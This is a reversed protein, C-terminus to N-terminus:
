RIDCFCEAYTHLPDNFRSLKALEREVLSMAQSVNPYRPALWTPSVGFKASADLLQMLFQEEESLQPEIFRTDYDGDSLSAAEAALAIADDINGIVDILGNDKAERGLWVKGQAIADVEDYTMDRNQAVGNVFDDYGNEINLQLVRKVKDTLARDVRMAGAIETSGVGDTYVGLRALSREFTPLMSLIGIS